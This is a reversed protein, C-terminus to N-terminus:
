TRRTATPGTSLRPTTSPEARHPPEEGRRHGGPHRQRVLRPRGDQQNGTRLSAPPHRDAPQRRIAQRAAPQTRFRSPLLRPRVRGERAGCVRRRSPGRGSHGPRGAGQDAPRPLGGPGRRPKRRPDESGQGVRRAPHRRHLRVARVTDLGRGADFDDSQTGLKWGAYGGHEALWEAIHSEFAAEDPKM